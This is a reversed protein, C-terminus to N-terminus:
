LGPAGMLQLLLMQVLALPWHSCCSIQLATALSSGILYLLWFGGTQLFSVANVLSSYHFAPSVLHQLHSHEASRM